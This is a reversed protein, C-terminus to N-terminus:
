GSIRIQEHHESAHLLLAIVQHTRDRWDDKPRYGQGDPLLPALQTLRKALHEAHDPKIRGHNDYHALLVVLPDEPMPDWFGLENAITIEDWNLDAYELRFGLEDRTHIVGYGAAEALFNRWLQFSGGAFSISRELGCIPMLLISM